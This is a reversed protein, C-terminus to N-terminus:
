RRDRVPPNQDAMGPQPLSRPPITGVFPQLLMKPLHQDGPERFYELGLTMGEHGGAPQACYTGFLRDWWSYLGGYNSDTEPQHASHHVRHMDPTVVVLRLVRDIGTSLAVNGHTLVSFGAYVTEHILVALPPAGLAVMAAMVFAGSLLAELPHHRTGTTFDVDMDSHHVMHIRWLVPVAHYVRHEFYRILDIALFAAAAALWAPLTVTNLLGWGRDEAILAAGIAAMPIAWRALAVNILAICINGLWRVTLSQTLPRRASVLEWVVVLIIAGYFVGGHIESQHRLLDDM